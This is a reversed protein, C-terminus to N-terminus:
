IGLRPQHRGRNRASAQKSRVDIEEAHLRLRKAEMFCLSCVIMDLLSIGEDESTVRYANGVILEGCHQCIHNM